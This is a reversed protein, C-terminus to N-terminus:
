PSLVFARRNGSGDIGWGVIVGADNIAEAYQLSLGSLGSPKFNNLDLAASYGQQWIFAKGGSEGVVVGSDNIGQLYVSDTGSPPNVQILNGGPKKIFGRWAGGSIQSAGAIEDPDNHSQAM